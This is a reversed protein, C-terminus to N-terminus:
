KGHQVPAAASAQGFHPDQPQTPCSASGPCRAFMACSSVALAAAIVLTLTLTRKPM